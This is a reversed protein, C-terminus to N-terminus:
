SQRTKAFRLHKPDAPPRMASGHARKRVSNQGSMGGMFWLSPDADVAHRLADLADDVKDLASLSLGLGEWTKADDPRYRLAARFAEAAEGAKGTKLYGAGLRFYAAGLQIRALPNGFAVKEACELATIKRLLAAKNEDSLEQALDPISLAPVPIPAPDAGFGALPALVLFAVRIAQPIFSVKSM